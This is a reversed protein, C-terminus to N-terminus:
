VLQVIDDGSFEPAGPASHRDFSGPRRAGGGLLFLPRAYILAASLPTRFSPKLALLGQQLL